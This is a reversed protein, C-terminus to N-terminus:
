KCLIAKIEERLPNGEDLIEILVREGEMTVYQLQMFCVEKNTYISSLVVFCKSEFDEGDLEKGISVYKEDTINLYTLFYTEDDIEIDKETNLIKIKNM